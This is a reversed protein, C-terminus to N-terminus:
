VVQRVGNKVDFWDSQSGSWTVSCKQHCYIYLLLRLFISDVNRKLLIGFLKSWKVMDFAKSMDIAASYVSAGRRIFHDIVATATWSCMTTSAKPQYAFQLSDFNLKDGELILIVSDIIKLVLCCGAIARYNSSKTIDALNDKVIPLLTCLLIVEPVFGHSLFLRILITLHSTLEKPGNLYFDSSVDFISDNKGSKMM